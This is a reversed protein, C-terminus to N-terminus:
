GLRVKEAIQFDLHQLDIGADTFFYQKIPEHKREFADM